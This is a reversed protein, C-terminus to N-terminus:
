IECGFKFGDTTLPFSNYVKLGQEEGKNIRVHRTLTELNRNKIGTFFFRLWYHSPFCFFERYPLYFSATEKSVAEEM